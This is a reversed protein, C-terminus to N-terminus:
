APTLPIRQPLAVASVALTEGGITASQGTDLWITSRAGRDPGGVIATDDTYNAITIWCQGGGVRLDGDLDFTLTDGTWAFSAAIPKITPHLTAGTGGTAGAAVGFPRRPDALSGVNGVAPNTVHSGTHRCTGTAGAPRHFPLSVRTGGNSLTAAGDPVYLGWVREGTLLYQEMARGQMLGLRVQGRASRHTPDDFGGFALDGSAPECIYDCGWHLVDDRALTLDLWVLPVASSPAGPAVYQVASAGCMAIAEEWGAALAERRVDDFYAAVAATRDARSSLRESLGQDLTLWARRPTAFKEAAIRAAQRLVRRRNDAMRSGDAGQLQVLLSQDIAVNATIVARDDLLGQRELWYARAWATTAGSAGTNMEKLDRLTALDGPSALTERLNETGEGLIRPGRNGFQFHRGAAVPVSLAALMTDPKMSKRSATLSQGDDRIVDVSAYDTTWSPAPDDPAIAQGSFEFITVLNLASDLKVLGGTERGDVIDFFMVQQPVLPIVAAAVAETSPPADTSAFVQRLDADLRVFRSVTEGELLDYFTLVPAPLAAFAKAVDGAQGSRSTVRLDRDLYFREPVTAGDVLDFFIAGANAGAAFARALEAAAAAAAANPAVALVDVGAELLERAEGTVSVADDVILAVGARVDQSLAIEARADDVALNAAVTAQEAVIAANAADGLETRVTGLLFETMASETPEAIKGAIKLQEAAALGRRGRNTVRLTM